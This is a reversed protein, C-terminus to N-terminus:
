LLLTISKYHLKSKSRLFYMLLNLSSCLPLILRRSKECYAVLNLSKLSLGILLFSIYTM